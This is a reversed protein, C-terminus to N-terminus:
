EAVTAAPIQQAAKLATLIKDPPPRKMKTGPLDAHVIGDPGIIYTHFGAQSYSKTEEPPTDLLLPFEARTREFSKKLGDQGDKEERFM